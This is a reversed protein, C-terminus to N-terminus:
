AVGSALLAALCFWLGVTGALGVAAYVSPLYAELAALTYGVLAIGVVWWRRSLFRGDPFVLLMLTVPVPPVTLYWALSQMPALIHWPVGYASVGPQLSVLVLFLSLALCLWGVGNTSRLTAIVAGVTAYAAIAFVVTLGGFIETFAETGGYFPHALGFWDLQYPAAVAEGFAVVFVWM